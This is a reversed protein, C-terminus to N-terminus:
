LYRDLTAAAIWRADLDPAATTKASCGEYHRELRGLQGEHRTRPERMQREVTRM